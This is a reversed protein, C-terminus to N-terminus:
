IDLMQYKRVHLFTSRDGKDCPVFTLPTRPGAPNRLCFQKKSYRDMM